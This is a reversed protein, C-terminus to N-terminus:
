ILISICFFVFWLSKVSDNIYIVVGRKVACKSFLLHGEAKRLLIIKYALVCAAEIGDHRFSYVLRVCSVCEELFWQESQPRALTEMKKTRKKRKNISFFANSYINSSFSQKKKSWKIRNQKWWTFLLMELARPRFSFIYVHFCFWGWNLKLILFLFQIFNASFDFNHYVTKTQGFWWM